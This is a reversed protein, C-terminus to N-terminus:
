TQHAAKSIAAGGHIKWLKSKFAANSIYKVITVNPRGYELQMDSRCVRAIQASGSHCRHSM